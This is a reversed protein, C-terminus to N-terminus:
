VMCIELIFFVQGQALEGQMGDEARAGKKRLVSEQFHVAGHWNWKRGKEKRRYVGGLGEELKRSVSITRQTTLM